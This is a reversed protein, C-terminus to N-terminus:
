KGDADLDRKALGYFDRWWAILKGPEPDDDSSPPYHTSKLRNILGARIVVGIPFGGFKELKVKYHRNPTIGYAKTTYEQSIIRLDDKNTEDLMEMRGLGHIYNILFPKMDGPRLFDPDLVLIEISELQSTETNEVQEILRPIVSQPIEWIKLYAKRASPADRKLDAIIAAVDSPIGQTSKGAAPKSPTAPTASSDKAKGAGGKAAAPAAGDSVTEPDVSKRARASKPSSKKAEPAAEPRDAPEGGSGGDPAEIRSEGGCGGLALIIALSIFSIRPM